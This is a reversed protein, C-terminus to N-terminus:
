STHEMEQSPPTMKAPKGGVFGGLAALGVGALVALAAKYNLAALDGATLVSLLTALGGALAANHAHKRHALLSTLVGGLFLSFAFVLYGMLEWIMKKHEKIWLVDSMAVSSALLVFVLQCGIILALTIITGFIFAKLQM